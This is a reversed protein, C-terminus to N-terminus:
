RRGGAIFSVFMGNVSYPADTDNSFFKFNNSFGSGTVIMRKSPLVVAGFVSTGFVSSSAGFIAASSLNGVAVAGPQPVETSEFDYRVLLKLNNNTGEPEINAKVAYLSKRLGNDGYDMDPTQFQADINSGDFNNGTDLQYVYGSENAGFQVEKNNIDLDSTCKKIEMGLTESWEFAPVGNADFKFTGIIGKQSSAAQGSQFYFLRYQSRERIVMSSIKFSSINALLNNILPLIKRSISSLEVDGIRATGAVTRLGDPALFVLDGGIEQITNGDVCGINKTVSKLIPTSDLNTLEFISNKCFVVLSNRFVKIGVIVDGTDITGASAGTFDYPKLRTSYAVTSDSDSQGAVILRESFITARKPNVPTSRELTEFHFVNSGGVTTIQFEAIKNNGDTIYVTGYIGESEYNVFQCNDQNTRSVVTASSLDSSSMGSKKVAQGSVSSVVNFDLTLVTDSTISLVRYNVNNIQIRDNAAFETTFATGSGTVTPSGATVSVTGTKTKYTDKNVQTYSTGTTSWYIDDGQCVLVGDAYPFLGEISETSVGSPIVGSAGGFKQYGNIRRYGGTTSSEFNQLKTAAGPTRFLAHSSSVLDLGGQVTISAGQTAM